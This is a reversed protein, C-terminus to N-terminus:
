ISSNSHLRARNVRHILLWGIVGIGVLTLINPEPVSSFSMLATVPTDFSAAWIDASQPPTFGVFLQPLLDSDQLLTNMYDTLWPSQIGDAGTIDFLPAFMDFGQQDVLSTDFVFTPMAATVLASGTTADVIELDGGSFYQRGEYALDVFLPDIRLVIDHGALPDSAYKPDIGSGGQAALTNLPLDDFSLTGSLANWHMSPSHGTDVHGAQPGAQGNASPPAELSTSQNRNELDLTMKAGPVTSFAQMIPVQVTLKPAVQKLGVQAGQQQNEQKVVNANFWDKVTSGGPLDYFQEAIVKGDLLLYSFGIHSSTANGGVTQTVNVTDRVFAYAVTPVTQLALKQINWDLQVVPNFNAPPLFVQNFRNQLMVGSITGRSYADAVAFDRVARSAQAEASQLASFQGITGPDKAPAGGNAVENSRNVSLSNTFADAFHGDSDAKASARVSVALGNNSSLPFKSWDDKTDVNWIIGVARQYTAPPPEGQQPPDINADTSKGKASFAAARSVSGAGVTAQPNAIFAIGNGLNMAGGPIQKVYPGGGLVSADIVLQTDTTAVPIPAAVADTM